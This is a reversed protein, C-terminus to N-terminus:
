LNLTVYLLSCLLVVEKKKKKKLRCDFKFKSYCTSLRKMTKSLFTFYISYLILYYRALLLMIGMINLNDGGTM